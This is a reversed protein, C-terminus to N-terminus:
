SQKRIRTARSFQSLFGKNKCFEVDEPNLEPIRLKQECEIKTNCTECHTLSEQIAQVPQQYFFRGIGIGLAQLMRPLPQSEVKKLLERRQERLQLANVHTKRVYFVGLIAVALVSLMVLTFSSFSM